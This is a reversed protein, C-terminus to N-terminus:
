TNKIELKPEKQINKRYEHGRKCHYEKHALYWNKYNQRIKEQNKIGYEKKYERVEPVCGRKIWEGNVFYLPSRNKIYKIKYNM